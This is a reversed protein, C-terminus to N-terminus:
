FRYVGRRGGGSRRRQERLWEGGFSPIVRESKWWIRLDLSVGKGKIEM